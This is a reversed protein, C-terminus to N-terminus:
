YGYMGISLEPQIRIRPGGSPNLLGMCRHLRFPDVAFVVMPDMDMIDAEELQLLFNCHLKRLLVFCKSVQNHRHATMKVPKDESETPQTMILSHVPLPRPLRLPTPRVLGIHLSVVCSWVCVRWVAGSVSVGCDSHPSLCAVILSLYQLLKRCM